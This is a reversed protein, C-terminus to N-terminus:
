AAKGQASRDRNEMLWVGLTLAPWVSRWHRQVHNASIFLEDCLKQLRRLNVYGEILGSFQELKQLILQQEKNRIRDYFHPSLDSKDKRRQIEAPLVGEMSRRLIMRGWGSCLKQEPPMSLCLEVLRRDYFPYRTALSFGYSLKDLSEFVFAEYGNAFSRAQEERLTSTRNESVNFDKVRERLNVRKLLDESIPFDSLIDAGNEKRRMRRWLSLVSSPIWRRLGYRWLIRRLPVGQMKAYARSEKMWRIFRGRLALETLYFSGHCATDDGGHGDLVIRIGQEQLKRHLGWHMYYTMGLYPTEELQSGKLYSEYPGCEDMPALHSEIGGAAVVTNFYRREDVQPLNNFIASFTKLRRGRGEQALLNRGMCTISSSDLGGSLMAGVPFASRLRCRVAEAFTERFVDAYDADSKFQAERKPDPQWYRRLRIGQREVRLAHAQPLRSINKYFTIEEERLHLALYSAIMEENLDRPINDLALIGRIESAFVFRAGNFFYYIPKIGFVDRALFLSRQRGDWIAFAFDGILREVCGESWKAYSMLILQSDPIRSAENGALGLLRILEDRNDIRADATVVLQMETNEFPQQEHLSEPTEHFMRHGLGVTENRWIGGGDPGRRAMAEMMRNLSAASVPCGDTNYIGGIASM